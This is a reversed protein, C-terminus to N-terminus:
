LSARLEEGLFVREIAHALIRAAARTTLDSEKPTVFYGRGEELIEHMKGEFLEESVGARELADFILTASSVVTPVGLCLVPVGLTERGIELRRNGVGAGPAIPTDSLQFTTALRACERAALADIVVVLDPRLSETVGRLYELSEMGTQGLVGVAVASLAACGFSDFTNKDRAALHRTVHLQGVCLPGVADATLGPNGLGAVLVSKQAERLASADRCHTLGAAMEGLEDAITEALLRESDGDLRWVPEAGVTVYRGTPRGFEREGKEDLITLRSVTGGWWRYQEYLYGREKGREKKTEPRM